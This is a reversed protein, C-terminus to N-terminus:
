DWCHRGLNEVPPKNNASKSCFGTNASNRFLMRAPHLLPDMYRNRKLGRVDNSYSNPHQWQDSCTADPNEESLRAARLVPLLSGTCRLIHCHFTAPVFDPAHTSLYN